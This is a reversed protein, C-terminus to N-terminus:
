RMPAADAASAPSPPLATGQMAAAEPAVFQQDLIRDQYDQVINELEVKQLGLLPEWSGSLLSRFDRSQYLGLTEEAVVVLRDNKEQCVALTKQTQALGAEARVREVDKSKAVGLVEQYAGQWQKLAQLMAENSAQSAAFDQQLQRLQTEREALVPAAAAQAELETMRGTQRDLQQQLLDRQRKAEDLEAQAGAQQDQLARLEVTTRRLADRLREEASVQQGNAGAPLLVAAALILWVGICRSTLAFRRLPHGVGTNTLARGGHIAESRERHRSLGRPKSNM